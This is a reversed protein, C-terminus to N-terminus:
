LLAQIRREIEARPLAGVLKDVERGHDFLIMTPISRIGYQSATGPNEDVNLKAIRIRGAYDSALQDLVPAVTRCPGCWPAWCDLLVPLPSSLVESRFTADTVAVTRGDHVGVALPTKCRGCVPRLHIRNRPVRNKVGCRNCRCLINEQDM